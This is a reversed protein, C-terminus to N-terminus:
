ACGGYHRVNGRQKEYRRVDALQDKFHELLLARMRSALKPRKEMIDKGDACRGFCRGLVNWKLRYKNRRRIGEPHPRREIGVSRWKKLRGNSTYVRWTDGKYEVEGVYNPIGRFSM